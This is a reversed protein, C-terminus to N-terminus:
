FTTNVINHVNRIHSQHQAISGSKEKCFQCIITQRSTAKMSKRGRTRSFQEQQVTDSNDSRMPMSHFSNQIPPVYNRRFSKRGRRSIQEQRAHQVPRTVTDSRENRVSQFSTERYPPMQTFMQKFRQTTRSYQEQSPHDQQLHESRVSNDHAYSPPVFSQLSKRGGTRYEEQWPDEQQLLSGSKDLYANRFSMSQLPDVVSTNLPLFNDTLHIDAYHARVRASDAFTKSCNPCGIVKAPKQQKMSKRSKSERMENSSINTVDEVAKGSTDELSENIVSSYKLKEVKSVEVNEPKEDVSQKLLQLQSIDSSVADKGKPLLLYGLFKVNETKKESVDEVLGEDNDNCQVKEAIIKKSSVTESPQCNQKPIVLNSGEIRKKKKLESPVNTELKKKELISRVAETALEELDQFRSDKEDNELTDEKSTLQQSVGNAVVSRKVKRHETSGDERKLQKKQMSHVNLIHKGGATNESTEEESNDEHAEEEEKTEVDNEDGNEEKDTSDEPKMDKQQIKEHLDQNAKSTKCVGKKTQVDLTCTDVKSSHSSCVDEDQPIEADRMTQDKPSEHSCSNRKCFIKWLCYILCSLTGVAIITGAIAVLIYSGIVNLQDQQSEFNSSEENTTNPKMTSTSKNQGEIPHLENSFINYFNEEYNGGSIEFGRSKGMLVGLCITHEKMTKISWQVEFSCCYTLSKAFKENPLNYIISFHFDCNSCDVIDNANDYKRMVIM